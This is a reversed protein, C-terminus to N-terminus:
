KIQTPAGLQIVRVVLHDEFRGNVATGVRQHRVIGCVKM